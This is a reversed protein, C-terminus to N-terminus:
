SKINHQKRYKDNEKAIKFAEQMEKSGAVGFTLLSTMTGYAMNAHAVSERYKLIEKDSIKGDKNTDIEQFDLKWFSKEYLGKKKAEEATMGAYFKEYSLPKEQKKAQTTQQKQQTKTTQPKQVQQQKVQPQQKKAQTKPQPQAQQKAQAKQNSSNKRNPFISQLEPNADVLQKFTMNSSKPLGFLNNAGNLSDIGM